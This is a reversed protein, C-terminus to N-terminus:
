RSTPRASSPKARARPRRREARRRRAMGRGRLREEGAELEDDNWGRTRVYSRLPLGMYVDNLLGIEVADLAPARGRPSTRTAAASASCTASTSCARGRTPRTTGGRACAPSCRGARSASRSSRASSCSRRARRCQDDARASCGSSNRSPVRRPARRLDDGRRHAVLRAARGGVGGRAQVRRVRGRGRGPAGSRAALRPEHLLGSRGPARRARLAGPEARLRARRVGRSMGALLVGARDGARARGGAIPEQPPRRRGHGCDTLRARRPRM